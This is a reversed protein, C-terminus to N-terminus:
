FEAREHIARWKEWLKKKNAKVADLANRADTRKMQSLERAPSPEAEECDGLSFVLEGEGRIVHVHPPPHDNTRIM